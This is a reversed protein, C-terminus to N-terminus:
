QNRNINVGPSMPPIERQYDSLGILRIIAQQKLTVYYLHYRSVPHRYWDASSPFEMNFRSYLHFKNVQNSVSQDLVFSVSIYSFHWFYQSFEFSIVNKVSTNHKDRGHRPAIYVTYLTYKRELGHTECLCFYSSLLNVLTQFLQKLKIWRGCLRMRHYSLTPLTHREM